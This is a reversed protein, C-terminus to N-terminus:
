TLVFTFKAMKKPVVVMEACWPTRQSVKSIDGAKEMRNLEDVVQQRLPLPVHRPSFIAHSRANSCLQITCEGSLKGLENFM